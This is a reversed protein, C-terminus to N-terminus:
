SFSLRWCMQDQFLPFDVFHMLCYTCFMLANITGAAIWFTIVFGLSQRSFPMGSESLLSGLNQFLYYWSFSKEKASSQEEPFQDGVFVSQIGNTHGNGVSFLQM